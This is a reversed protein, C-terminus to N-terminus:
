TTNFYMMVDYKQFKTVHVKQRDSMQVKNYFNQEEILELWVDEVTNHVYITCHTRVCTHTASNEFQGVFQQGVVCMNQINFLELVEYNRLSCWCM